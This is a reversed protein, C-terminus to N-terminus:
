RTRTYLRAQLQVTRTLGPPQLICLGNDQFTSLRWLTSWTLDAYPKVWHPQFQSGTGVIHLASAGGSLRRKRKARIQRRTKHRSAKMKGTQSAEAFGVVPQLSTNAHVRITILLANGQSLANQVNRGKHAGNEKRGGGSHPASPSVSATTPQAFRREM